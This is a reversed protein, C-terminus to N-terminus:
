NIKKNFVHAHVLFKSFKCILNKKSRFYKVCVSLMMTIIYSASFVISNCCKKSHNNNLLFLVVVHLTARKMNDQKKKDEHRQTLASVSTDYRYRIYRRSGQFKCKVLALIDPVFLGYTIIRTYGFSCINEM